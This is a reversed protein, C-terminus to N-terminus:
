PRPVMVLALLQGDPSVALRSVDGGVDSLDAIPTWSRDRDPRAAHLTSGAGMLLTGDPTWAHDQGGEVPEILERVEGSGPDLALIMSGSERVRHYSVEPGGPIRQISRGIASDAVTTRGSRVDGVQLTPPDGLVFMVVTASDSWAHYGVPQLDPFLPGVATGDLDFEWLRQASDAEVRVAAFTARGPIPVASYESEPASDTIRRMEGGAAPVARIDTNGGEEATFLLLAGDPTFQPQNDYGQRSTRNSPTGLRLEGGTTTLTAVFVDPSGGSSPGATSDPSEVATASGTPPEPDADGADSGSCAAAVLTTGLAALWRSGRASGFGKM